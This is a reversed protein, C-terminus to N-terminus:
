GNVSGRELSRKIWPLPSSDRAAEAAIAGLLTFYPEAPHRTMAKKLDERFGAVASRDKANLHVLTEHLEDKDRGVDHVGVSWTAGVAVLLLVASGALVARAAIPSGTWRLTVGDARSVRRRRHDGWLAGLVAALAISIGPLELALDLLNQALLIFAGIWGGAAISSRRVGMNTPRFLWAFAAMAALGVPLGWESVWQAPFNEAHTFVINGINGYSSRYAPFVSEFAGRGIGLLLHERVLQKTWSIMSLKELNKDYLEQWTAATAGLFALFIGGGIAGGLLWPFARTPVNEARDPDPSRLVFAFLAVGVPLVLFGARSASIVDVGVTTAVGLGVMWRPLSPRRAVLLGLGCMTGLNLYGALNNPNILPSLHWSAVDTHPKYIGFVSTANTLGHSVTVLSLLVASAFVVTVGWEAGRRSSAWASLAFVAAYVLWKLVEVYSAGADLSISAWGLSPVDFPLLSRQWVDANLPALKSLLGMPLPVAQLFTYGALALAVLAPKTFRLPASSTSAKLAVGFAAVVILTVGLLLAPYVTGIALMSGVVALALLADAITEPSASRGLGARGARAGFLSTRRNPEERM